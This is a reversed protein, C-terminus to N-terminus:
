LYQIRASCFTLLPKEEVVVVFVQRWPRASSPFIASTDPGVAHIIFGTTDRYKPVYDASVAARLFFSREVDPNFSDLLPPPSLVRKGARSLGFHKNYPYQTKISTDSM